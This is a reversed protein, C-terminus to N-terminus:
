LEVGLLVEDREDDIGMRIWGPRRGWQVFGLGSFFSELGAHAPVGADVRELGREKARALLRGVLQTGLGAGTHESDIVILELRGTHQGSGRGPRLFGVGILRRARNAAVGILRGTKIEDVLGAARGAVDSRLVPPAFGVPAGAEAARQWLTVRAGGVASDSAGGGGPGVWDVTIVPDSGVTPDSGAPGNGLQAGETV